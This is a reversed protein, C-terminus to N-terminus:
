LSNEYFSLEKQLLDVETNSLNSIARNIRQQLEFIMESISSSKNKNKQLMQFVELWLLWEKPYAEFIHDIFHCLRKFENEQMNLSLAYVRGYFDFLEITKTPLVIEQVPKTSAKGVDYNQYAEQEFPGGYVSIIEKGFPVFLVKFNNKTGKLNMSANELKLVGFKNDHGKILIVKGEIELADGYQLIISDGLKMENLKKVVQNVKIKSPEGIPIAWNENSVNLNGELLEDKYAIQIPGSIHIIKLSDNISYFKRVIGSFISGLAWKITVVTESSLAKNIGYAGGIKYSLLKEMEDLTSLLNEFKRVVFLQPQAETIDYAYNICDISFPYKKVKGSLCNQSEDVSSLLGAGFVKPHNMDGFLGYEATWWYLRIVQASESVDGIGDKLLLLEQEAKEIESASVGPLEKLDSLKRIAEYQQFYKKSSIAKKAVEAYRKLYDAYVENVLIPAHGASEHVIDPAPTYGIHDISRMNHAIPLVGHSQFELFAIPPIFGCVPVAGWGFKDLSADMESIRPIKELSIGTLKLGKAYEPVAFERKAFYSVNQMLIYRWVAQDRTSYNDYNQQDIYQKLHKPLRDVAKSM